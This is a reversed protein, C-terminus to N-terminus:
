MGEDFFRWRQAVSVIRDGFHLVTKLLFPVLRGQNLRNNRLLFKVYGQANRRTAWLGEFVTL